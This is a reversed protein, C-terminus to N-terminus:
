TTMPRSFGASEFSPNQMVTSPKFSERRAFATDANCPSTERAIHVILAREPLMGMQVLVAPLSKETESALAQARELDAESLVRNKSLIAKIRKDFTVGTARADSM